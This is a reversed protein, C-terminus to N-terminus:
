RNGRPDLDYFKIARRGLSRTTAENVGASIPIGVLPVARLLGARTFKIGVYRFMQKLLQLTAGKV